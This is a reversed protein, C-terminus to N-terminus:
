NVTLYSLVFLLQIELQRVTLAITASMNELQTALTLCPRLLKKVLWCCGVKYSLPRAPRNSKKERGGEFDVEVVM